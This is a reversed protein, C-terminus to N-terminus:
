LHYSIFRIFSLKHGFSSASRGYNFFHGQSRVIEAVDILDQAIKVGTRNRNKLDSALSNVVKM